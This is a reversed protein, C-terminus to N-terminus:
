GGGGEYRNIAHTVEFAFMLLPLHQSSSSLQDSLVAEGIRFNNRFPWWRAIGQKQPALFRITVMPGAMNRLSLVRFPKKDGLCFAQLVTGDSLHWENTAGFPVFQSPQVMGFSHGHGSQRALTEPAADPENQVKELSFHRGRRDHKGKRFATEFTGDDTVMVSEINLRRRRRATALVRGSEDSFEYDWSTIQKRTIRPGPLSGVSEWTEEHHGWGMHDYFLQMAQDVTDAEVTWTRKLYPADALRARSKKDSDAFFRAKKDGDEDRGEWLEFRMGKMIPWCQPQGQYVPTGNRRSPPVSRCSHAASRLLFM